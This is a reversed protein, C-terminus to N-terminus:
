VPRSIAKRRLAAAIAPVAQLRLRHYRVLARRLAALDRLGWAAVIPKAADGAAGLLQAETIRALALRDGANAVAHRHELNTSSEAIAAFLNSLSLPNGASEQALPGTDALAGGRGRPGNRLAALLLELHWAYLDRLAPESLLPVHFGEQPWSDVMREGSLRHLADRVPTASANFDLALRAPDLRMGPALGGGMIEAKLAAYVREMTLGPSM